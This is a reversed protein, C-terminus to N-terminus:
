LHTDNNKHGILLKRYIKRIGIFLFYIVIVDIFYYFLDIQVGRIFWNDQHRYTLFPFPFGYKIGSVDENFLNGPFILITLLSIWLSYNFIKKDFM